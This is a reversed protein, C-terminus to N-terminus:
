IEGITESRLIDIKRIIKLAKDYLKPSNLLLKTIDTKTLSKKNKPPKFGLQKGLDKVQEAWMANLKSQLKEKKTMNKNNNNNAIDFRVKKNNDLSDNYTEKGLKSGGVQEKLEGIESKTVTPKVFNQLFLDDSNSIKRTITIKPENKHKQIDMFEKIFLEKMFIHKGHRICNKENDLMTEIFSLMRYNLNEM